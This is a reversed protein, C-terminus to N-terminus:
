FKFLQSVVKLNNLDEDNLYSFIVNTCTVPLTALRAGKKDTLSAFFNKVKNLLDYRQLVKIYQEQIMGAYLPFKANYSHAKLYAFIRANETYVMLKQTDKAQFFNYLIKNTGAIKEGKMDRIEKECKKFLTFLEERSKIFRWSSNSVAESEFKRKVLM